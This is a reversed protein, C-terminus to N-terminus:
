FSLQIVDKAKFVGENYSFDIQMNIANTTDDTEVSINDISVGQMNLQVASVLENKINQISQDDLPEFLYQLLNVGFDPKYLVEGKETTLLFTLNSKVAQKGTRTLGMYNGRISDEIPFKIGIYVDNAM